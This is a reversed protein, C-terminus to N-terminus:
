EPSASSGAKWFAQSAAVRATASSSPTVPSASATRAKRSKERQRQDSARRRNAMASSRVGPLAFMRWHYEWNREEVPQSALKQLAM